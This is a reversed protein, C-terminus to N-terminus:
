VIITFIWLGRIVGVCKLKVVANIKPREPTANWRVWRREASKHRSPMISDNNIAKDSQDKCIPAVFKVGAGMISRAKEAHSALAPNARRTAVARVWPM